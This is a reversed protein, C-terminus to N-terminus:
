RANCASLWNARPLTQHSALTTATGRSTMTQTAAIGLSSLTMQKDCTTIVTNYNSPLITSRSAATATLRALNDKLVQQAPLKATMQSRQIVPQERSLALTTEVRFTYGTTSLSVVLSWHARM